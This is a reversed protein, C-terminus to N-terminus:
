QHAASRRATNQHSEGCGRAPLGVVEERSFAGPDFANWVVPLGDLRINDAMKQLYMRTM